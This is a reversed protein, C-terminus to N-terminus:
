LAVIAGHNRHALDVFPRRVACAIVRLMVHFYSHWSPNQSHQKERDEQDRANGAWQFVACFCEFFLALLPDGM